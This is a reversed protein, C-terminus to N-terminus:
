EAIAVGSVNLPKEIAPFAVVAVYLDATVIVAVTEAADFIVKLAFPTTRGPHLFLAVPPTDGLIAAVHEHFGALRPSRANVALAVGSLPDPVTM